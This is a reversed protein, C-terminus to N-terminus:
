GALYKLDSMKWVGGVRQYSLLFRFDQCVTGAPCTATRKLKTTETNQVQQTALVLLTASEGSLRTVAMKQITGTAVTKLQTATAIQTASRAQFQQSLSGTSGAILTQMIQQASHYDQNLLGSVQQTVSTELGRLADERQDGITHGPVFRTGSPILLVLYILALVVYAGLVVTLARLWSVGRLRRAARGEDVM